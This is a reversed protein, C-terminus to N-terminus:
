VYYDIRDNTMKRHDPLVPDIPKEEETSDLSFKKQGAVRRRGRQFGSFNHEKFFSEPEDSVMVDFSGIELGQNVFGNKLHHLNSELIDKVMSSDAMVKITVHHNENSINLRINGLIEPKLKIIIKGHEKNSSLNVKEVIQKIIDIQNPQQTRPLIKTENVTSPMRDSNFKVKLDGENNLKSEEILTEFKSNFSKSKGNSDMTGKSDGEKNISVIRDDSYKLELRSRGVEIEDTPMSISKNIQSSTTSTNSLQSPGPNGKQNGIKDTVQSIKKKNELDSQNMLESQAFLKVKEAKTSQFDKSNGNSKATIEKMEFNNKQDKGDAINSDEVILRDQINSKLKQDDFETQSQKVVDIQSQKVIDTQSQKIINCSYQKESESDKKFILNGSTEYFGKSLKGGNKLFESIGGEDKVLSKSESLNDELSLKQFFLILTELNRKPDTQDVSSKMSDFLPLLESSITQSEGDGMLKLLAQKTQETELSGTSKEKILKSVFEFFSIGDTDISSIGDKNFSYKLKSELAFHNEGDMKQIKNFGILLDPQM